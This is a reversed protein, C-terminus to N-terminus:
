PLREVRVEVVLRLRFVLRRLEPREVNKLEWSTERVASRESYILAPHERSVWELSQAAFHTRAEVGQAALDAPVSGPQVPVTWSAQQVHC